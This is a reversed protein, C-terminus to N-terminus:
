KNLSFTKTSGNNSTMLIKDEIVKVSKINGETYLGSDQPSIVSYNDKQNSVLILAYNNDLRPTEVETNYINGVVVLDEYGDKNIDLGDADIIPMTQAMFPLVSKKFVGEGQNILVLSKFQNVEKQYASFIRDGYIDELSYRAFEGYTPIKQSIFPMQQTSCEKGRSPVFIGNYQQSLVVDLTGSNDFDDAYIRLTKDKKVKFKINSGVNGVVYDKLGDKNVDTETINFWWGKEENLKSKESIDKFVGKENLFIGVHTWEGVAIFDQWGDNNIDSTIIKNIIGFNSLNACVRNTVNTFKGNNNEYVISPVSIPYNQPVIRNGVLLDIDGDKDFDIKSITKGSFSFDEIGSSVEKTFNGKGDNLYLRDRLRPDSDRFESGGSVVYLDQDGDNDADFFLSEMDEHKSDESFAAIQKQRYSSGTNIFLGGAQNHAGGVYVDDLGDGNVDGTSIFPGQTSQKYPLLVEKKFDNFGNEKHDFPVINNTESYLTRMQDSSSRKAKAESEAIKLTSNSKVNYLEQYKGSPWQVKVTDITSSEGLGFFLDNDVSSMYGSVRRSEKVKSKGNYHVSVKVFSESLEGRPVVKLFNGRKQEVSLNKFLFSESDMNNVVLDLDGDNDLDAYAAGNSFSYENLGSLYTIDKFKLDGNNKYLINPLKESPLKNYIQEKVELPVNGNYKRKTALIEQKIDNDLGYRRYGNTVYIDENEDLDADFILGAWSWDTKALGTYQSVNHYKNNGLNLQLSNYMYQTQYNLSNLLNFQPVNMSAMLTKSRIHDQSAMDLVFIDDLNDNNIDAIDVGMGYFSVQKTNQNIQDTFTKNKNSIYMADPIYYDNAIYIDPWSDNNIDAICLGLGFSAKLMGVKETANAFKGNRNEYFHSSSKKLSEKKKNISVFTQPDFGYFESENMVICDLDGDKDFDFFASQTSISNDALGYAKAEEKFTNDKQNIFLLNERKDRSHPGGQSVYIDIWGDQNVDAFSVGNSWNKNTNINATETIDEFVMNGKNLFLRNPVQNGCFFVDKLGDNNIDEVGVGAGNYFFDFDFLNSKSLFDHKIENNFVLKSQSNEIKEFLYQIEKNQQDPGEKNPDGDNNEKCQICIFFLSLLLLLRQSSM